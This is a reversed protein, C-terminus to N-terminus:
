PHMGTETSAHGTTELQITTHEIPVDFHEALCRQLHDLIAPAHGDHFCSEELVVHATLIPQDSGISSCHLDHVDRVHPSDLLHARVADLDIEDPTEELLVPTATRLIRIARPIILAAIALGSLADIRTYGTTAIVLASLLVLVSGLTDAMVELLAARSNLNHEHAGRLIVMSALNGLLGIVGFVALGPAAVITPHMLRSIGEIVAYLGVALLILSQLAAAVIEARAYGWTRRKTPPREALTAATAAVALTIVDTVMHGADVLLALSGLVAAGIVEAVLITATIACALILRRKM